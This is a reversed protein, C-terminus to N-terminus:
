KCRRRRMETYWSCNPAPLRRCPARTPIRHFAFLNCLLPRFSLEFTLHDLFLHTIHKQHHPLLNDAELVLSARLIHYSLRDLSRSKHKLSSDLAVNALLTDVALALAQKGKVGARIKFDRSVLSFSGFQTSAVSRPLMWFCEVDGRNM